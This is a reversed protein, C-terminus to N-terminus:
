LATILILLAALAIAIRYPMEGAFHELPAAVSLTQQMEM